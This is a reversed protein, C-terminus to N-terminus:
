NRAAVPTPAPLPLNKEAMVERGRDPYDTILGDVGWDMLRRMEERLNVTWPVVKLGLAHAQAVLERSLDRYDPSWVAGGAAKVMAPVSPFDALRKGTWPSAGGDPTALTDFGPQQSSLYVTPVEPALQQVVALTRWDFSQVSVRNRLSALDVAALVARAFAAPEPTEDPALPSLKTEINFRVSENGASRALAFVSALTPIRVGDMRKQETFRQSLASGPRIRGVDVRQLEALTMEDITRASGTLWRRDAGRAIDPNLRRDHHVVVVGDRTVGVDLELTSVGITLATAFGPLTNETALGRSGRHGQLDFAHVHAAATLLLAAMLASISHRKAKM